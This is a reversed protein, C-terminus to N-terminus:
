TSERREAAKAEMAREFAGLDLSEGASRAPPAQDAKDPGAKLPFVGMWGRKVSQDLIEKQVARDRSLKELDALILRRAKDTLPKRSKRRMEEFDLLAQLLETDEGAYARFVSGASARAKKSESKSESESQIPNSQIPNPCCNIDDSILQNCAEDPAPYKSKRARIQQHVEWSPLYLYPKGDCEYTIVCGIDAMKDLASQIDRLSLREKLPFLRSKLIAPRADMRGFDDCATLLRTFFCEEFWTMKDVTDSTCISEKLIRNGM